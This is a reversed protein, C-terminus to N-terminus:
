RGDRVGNVALIELTGLYQDTGPIIASIDYPQSRWVIRMDESIGAREIIRFRVDVTHQQQNASFFASGRLPIAEAWIKHDPTSTIADQWTVIEEGIGNQAVVKQQLLIRQNRKGAIM